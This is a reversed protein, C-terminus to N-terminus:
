RFLLLFIIVLLDWQFEMYAQYEMRPLIAMCASHGPRFDVGKKVGAGAKQAMVNMPFFVRSDCMLDADAVATDVKEGGGEVKAM